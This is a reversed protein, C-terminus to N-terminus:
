VYVLHRNRSCHCVTLVAVREDSSAVKEGGRTLFHQRHSLSQVVEYALKDGGERISVKRDKGHEDCLTHSPLSEIHKTFIEGRGVEFVRKYVYVAAYVLQREGKLLSLSRLKVADCFM